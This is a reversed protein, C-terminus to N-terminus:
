ETFYDVNIEKVQYNSDQQLKKILAGLMKSIQNAEDQWQLGIDKPIFGVETGIDAQTKFEGISGKAFDLFRCRERLSARECGEAINSPVSLASRSIQDKFGFDRCQQLNRYVDISLTRSRSWVELKQYLM